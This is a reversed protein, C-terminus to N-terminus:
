APASHIARNVTRSSGLYEGLAPLDYAFNSAKRGALRDDSAAPTEYRLVHDMRNSRDIAASIVSFRFLQRTTMAFRNTQGILM